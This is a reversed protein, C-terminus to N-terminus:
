DNMCEKLMLSKADQGDNMIVLPYDKGIAYNFPLFIDVQKYYNLSESFFVYSYNAYDSKTVKHILQIRKVDLIAM